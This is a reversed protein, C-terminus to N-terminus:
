AMRRLTPLPHNHDPLLESSAPVYDTPHDHLYRAVALHAHCTGPILDQMDTLYHDILRSDEPGTKLIECLHLFDAEAQDFADLRDHYLARAALLAEEPPRSDLHELALVTNLASDANHGSEADTRDRALSFVDNQIAIAESLKDQMTRLPRSFALTEPLEFGEFLEIMMMPALMGIDDRRIAFIEELSLPRGLALAVSKAFNGRQLGELSHRFRRMWAPSMMEEARRLVDKLARDAGTPPPSGDASPASHIVRVTEEIIPATRRPDHYISGLNDDHFLAWTVWDTILDLAAGRARPYACAASIGINWANVMREGQDSRVLRMQVAWDKGHQNAAEADPSMQWHPTTYFFATIQERTFM